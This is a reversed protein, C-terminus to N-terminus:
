GAARSRQRMSRARASADSASLRRNLGHRTALTRAAEQSAQLEASVRATARVSGHPSAAM